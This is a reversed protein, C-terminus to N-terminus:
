PEFGAQAFLELSGIEFLDLVPLPQHLPELLSCRGLLRLAKLEFGLVVFLSNLFIHLGLCHICMHIFSFFIHLVEFILCSPSM